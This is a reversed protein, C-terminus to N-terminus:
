AKKREAANLFLTSTPTGAVAWHTLFRVATAQTVTSTCTGDKARHISNLVQCQWLQPQCEIRAQSKGYAKPTAM